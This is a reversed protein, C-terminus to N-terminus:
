LCASCTRSSLLGIPCIPVDVPGAPVADMCLPRQAGFVLLFPIVIAASADYVIFFALTALVTTGMM